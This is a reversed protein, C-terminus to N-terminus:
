NQNKNADQAAAGLAAIGISVAAHKPNVGSAWLNLFGIAVGLLTTKWNKFM